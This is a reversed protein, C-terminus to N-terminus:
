AALSPVHQVVRESQYAHLGVREWQDATLRGPEQWVRPDVAVRGVDHVCAAFRVAQVDPDALGSATAALGALNAVGFSHGVLYPSVLDAFDGVAALAREVQTGALRLHPAPEA